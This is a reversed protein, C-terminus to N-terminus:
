LQTISLCQCEAIMSFVQAKRIYSHKEFTDHACSLLDKQGRILEKTIFYDCNKRLMEENLFNVNLIHVLVKYFLTSSFMYQWTSYQLMKTMSELQSM